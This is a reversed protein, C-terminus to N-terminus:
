FSKRRRIGSTAYERKDAKYEERDRVEQGRLGRSRQEMSEGRQSM